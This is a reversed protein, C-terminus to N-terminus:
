CTKATRVYPLEGGSRPTSTKKGDKLSWRPITLGLEIYLVVGTLAVIAGYLWMLLSIGVSQTNHFIVTSSNFIGSGTQHNHTHSISLPWLTDGAHCELPAVLRDNSEALPM